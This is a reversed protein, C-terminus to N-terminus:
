CHQSFDHHFQQFIDIDLIKEQFFAKKSHVFRVERRAMARSRTFGTPATQGNSFCKKRNEREFLSPATVFM